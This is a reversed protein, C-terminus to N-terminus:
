ASRTACYRKVTFDSLGFNQATTLISADNEIRWARVMSPDFPKGQRAKESREGLVIALNHSTWGHHLVIHPAREEQYSM